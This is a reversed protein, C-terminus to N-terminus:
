IITTQYLIRLMSTKNCVPIEWFTTLDDLVLLDIRIIYFM